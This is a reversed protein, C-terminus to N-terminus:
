DASVAQSELVALTSPDTRTVTPPGILAAGVATVDWTMSVDFTFAGGPQGGSSRGFTISCDTSAGAAYARGGATCGTKTSSGAPLGSVAVSAPTATVTVSNGGGSATVSIPEWAGPDFWMWTELHVIARAAPNFSVDPMRVMDDMVQRAIGMLIEPPVPPQPPAQGAPVWIPGPNDASWQDVYDFFEPLSGDFNASTCTWSWWNGDQTAREATGEPFMEDWPTGTGHALQRYRPDNSDAFMEAGSRGKEYWCPPPVRNPVTVPGAPSSYSGGRVSITVYSVGAQLTGGSNEATCSVASTCDAVAPQMGGAVVVGAAAIPVLWRKM